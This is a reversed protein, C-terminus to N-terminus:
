LTAPNTPAKLEFCLMNVHLVTKQIAQHQRQTWNYNGETPPNMPAPHYSPTHTCGCQYSPTRTCSCRDLGEEQRAQMPNRGKNRVSSAVRQDATVVNQTVEANMRQSVNSPCGRYLGRQCLRLPYSLHLNYDRISGQRMRRRKADYCRRHQSETCKERRSHADM